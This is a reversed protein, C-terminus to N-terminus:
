GGYKKLIEEWVGKAKLIVEAVERVVGKGGPAETIYDAKEKAESSADFPACAFGVRSMIGIDIIEDGVYCVEEEKLGSEKLFEELKAIKAGSSWLREEEVGYIKAVQQDARSIKTTLFAIGIGAEKLLKCGFRDHLSFAENKVGDHSYNLTNDTLVGHIDLIIVKINKAKEMWEM